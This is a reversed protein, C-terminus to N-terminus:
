SFSYGIVYTIQQKYKWTLQIINTLSSGYTMGEFSIIINCINHCDQALWVLQCLLVYFVLYIQVPSVLYYSHVLCM